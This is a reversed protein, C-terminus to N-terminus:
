GYSRDRAYAAVDSAVIKFGDGDLPLRKTGYVYSDFFSSFDSGTVTNIAMLVDETTYPNEPSYYEYLYRMVDDLRTAGGSHARIEKDLLYAVLRGKMYIMRYGWPLDEPPNDLAFDSPYVSLFDVYEEWAQEIQNYPWNPLSHYQARVAYYDAVGEAFWYRGGYRAIQNALRRISVMNWCHFMEHAPSAWLYEGGQTPVGYTGFLYGMAEGRAVIQGEHTVDEVPIKVVLRGFPSGGFIHWFYDATNYIFTAFQESTPVTFLCGYSPITELTALDRHICVVVERGHLIRSFSLYQHVDPFDFVAIQVGPDGYAWDTRPNTPNGVM